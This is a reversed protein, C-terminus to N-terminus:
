LGKLLTYSPVDDLPFDNYREYYLLSIFVLQKPANTALTEFSWYKNKGASSVQSEEYFIM